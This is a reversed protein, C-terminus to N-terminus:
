TLFIAKGVDFHLLLVQYTKTKSMGGEKLFKQSDTKDVIQLDRVQVDKNSTNIFSQIKGMLDENTLPRPNLIELLFPRGRGLMRVDVDERGSSSFTSSKYNIYQKVGANIQEQVCTMFLAGGDVFWPTQSVNRSFKMYRGAIYIPENKLLINQLTCNEKLESLKLQSLSDADLQSIVRLVSSHNVFSLASSM